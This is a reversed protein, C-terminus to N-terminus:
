EIKGIDKEEREDEEGFQFCSTTSGSFFVMFVFLIFICIRIAFIFVFPLHCIAFVQLKNALQAMFNLDLADAKVKINNM